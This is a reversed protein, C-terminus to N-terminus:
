HTRWACALAGGHVVACVGARGEADKAGACLVVAWAAVLYFFFENKKDLKNCIQQTTLIRTPNM